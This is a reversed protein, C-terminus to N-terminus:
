ALTLVAAQGAQQEALEICEVPDRAREAVILALCEAGGVRVLKRSVSGGFVGIM